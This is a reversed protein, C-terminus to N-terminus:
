DGGTPMITVDCRSKDMWKKDTEDYYPISLIWGWPNVDVFKPVDKSRTKWIVTEGSDIWLKDNVNQDSTNLKVPVLMRGTGSNRIKAWIKYETIEEYGTTVMEATADEVIYAPYGEGTRLWYDFYWGYSDGTMEEVIDQLMYDSFFDKDLREKLLGLMKKFDEQGLMFYLMQFVPISSSDDSLLEERSMNEIERARKIDKSSGACMYYSRVFRNELSINKNRGTDLNYKMVFREFDYMNSYWNIGQGFYYAVFIKKIIYRDFSDLRKFLQEEEWERLYGRRRFIKNYKRVDKYEHKFIFDQTGVNSDHFVLDLPKETNINNIKCFEEIAPEALEIIEDVVDRYTNNVIFNIKLESNPMRLISYDGYKSFCISSLPGNCEKPIDFTYITKNDEKKIVPDVPAYLFQYDDKIEYHNITPWLEKVVFDFMKYGNSIKTGKIFSIGRTPYGVTDLSTNSLMINLDFTGSVKMKHQKGDAYPKLDDGEIFYSFKFVYPVEKGDIFIKNIVYGIRLLSFPSIIALKGEVEGFVSITLNSTYNNLMWYQEDEYIHVNIINEDKIYKANYKRELIEERTKSDDKNKKVILYDAWAPKVFPWVVKSVLLILMVVLIIKSKRTIHPDINLDCAMKMFTPTHYWHTGYNGLVKRQPETRRFHFCALLLFVFSYLINMAFHIWDVPQFFSIRAQNFVKINMSIYSESFLSVIPVFNHAEGTLTPRSLVGINAIFIIGFFLIGLIIIAMLNNKFCTRIWITISLVCCIGPIFYFIFLYIVNPIPYELSFQYRLILEAPFFLICFPILLSILGALMQATMLLFTPFSRVMLIGQMGTSKIRGISFLGTFVVVILYVFFFGGDLVTNRVNIDM